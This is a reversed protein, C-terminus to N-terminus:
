LLDWKISSIEKWKNEKVEWWWWIIAGNYFSAQPIFSCSCSVESFKDTVFRQILSTKGTRAPGVVVVKVEGANDDIESSSSTKCSSMTSRDLSRLKSDRSAGGMKDSARCLFWYYHEIPANTFLFNAQFQRLFHVRVHTGDYQMLMWYFLELLCWMKNDTERCVCSSFSVLRM